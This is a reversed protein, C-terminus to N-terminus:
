LVELACLKLHAVDVKTYIKTTDISAHGLVKSITFIPVNNNLMRTALSARLCHAGYHKDKINIGCSHFAQNVIFTIDGSIMANGSKKVFLLDSSTKPRYHLVYDVVANGVMPILDYELEVNTKSTVFHIKNIEWKIDNYKLRTIDKARMGYFGIMLVIAYNRKSCTDNRGKYYNLVKSIQESTYVSSISGTSLVPRSPFFANFDDTILNANKAYILFNKICAMELKAAYPNHSKFSAVYEIIKNGTLSNLPYKVLFRKLNTTKKEITTEKLGQKRQYDEYSKLCEASFEDLNKVLSAVSATNIRGTTQFELLAKWRRKIIVEYATLSCDDSNMLDKGYYSICHESLNNYNLSVDDCEKIMRKWIYFYGREVTSEKCGLGYLYKRARDTLASLPEDYM